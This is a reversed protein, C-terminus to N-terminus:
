LLSGELVLLYFLAVHKMKHAIFFRCSNPYFEMVNLIFTNETQSISYKWQTMLLLFYFIINQKGRFFVKARLFPTLRKETQPRKKEKVKLHYRVM